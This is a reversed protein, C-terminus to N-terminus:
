SSKGGMAKGKWEGCGGFPRAETRLRGTALCSLFLLLLWLVVVQPYKRRMQQSTLSRGQGGTAVNEAITRRGFRTFGQGLELPAGWMSRPGGGEEAAGEKGGRRGETGDVATTGFSVSAWWLQRSTLARRGGGGCWRRFAFSSAGREVRRTAVAGWQYQATSKKRRRKKAAETTSRSNGSEWRARSYQATYM